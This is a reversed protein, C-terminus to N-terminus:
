DNRFKRYTIGFFWAKSVSYVFYLVSSLKVLFQAATYFVCVLITLPKPEHAVM